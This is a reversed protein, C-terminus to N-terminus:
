SRGKKAHDARTAVIDVGTDLINRILVQGMEVPAPFFHENLEAIIPRIMPLSVPRSSKVSTIPRVGDRVLVSTLVTRRPNREEQRRYAEGKPCFDEGNLDCGKPCLICILPVEHM